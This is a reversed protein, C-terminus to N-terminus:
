RCFASPFAWPDLLFDLDADDPEIDGLSADLPDMVGKKPGLLPFLATLRLRRMASESCSCGKRGPTQVKLQFDDFQAFFNSRENYFDEM